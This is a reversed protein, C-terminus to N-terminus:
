SRHIERGQRDVVVVEIPLTVNQGLCALCRLLEPRTNYSVVVVSVRAAGAAATM